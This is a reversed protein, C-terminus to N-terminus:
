IKLSTFLYPGAYKKIIDYSNQQRGCDGNFNTRKSLDLQASAPKAIELSIASAAQLRNHAALQLTDHLQQLKNHASSVYETRLLSIQFTLISFKDM